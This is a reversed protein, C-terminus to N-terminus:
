KVQSLVKVPPELLIEWFPSQSAEGKWYSHASFSSELNSGLTLLSMDARFHKTAEVEWITGINGCFNENFVEAEAYTEVAFFSTFRSPRYNFHAQRVYEFLLETFSMPNIRNDGLFHQDGHRSVGEPFILDAHAQLHPPSIDSHKELQLVSNIHLFNRRDVTFFKM